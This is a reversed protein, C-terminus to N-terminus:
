FVHYVSYVRRNGTGKIFIAAEFYVILVGMAKCTFFLFRRSDFTYYIAAAETM